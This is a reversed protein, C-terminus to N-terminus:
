NKTCTLSSNGKLWLCDLWSFVAKYMVLLLLRVVVKVYKWILGDGCGGCITAELVCEAWDAGGRIVVGESFTGRSRSLSFVWLLCSLRWCVEGVSILSRVRWPVDISYIFSSIYSAIRYKFYVIGLLFSLKIHVLSAMPLFLPISNIYWLEGTHIRSTAKKNMMCSFNGCWKM